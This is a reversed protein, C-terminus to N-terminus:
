RRSRLASQYVSDKFNPNGRKKPYRPLYEINGLLLKGGPGREWRKRCEPLRQIYRYATSRNINMQRAYESATVWLTGYRNKQM